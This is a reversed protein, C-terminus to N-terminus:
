CLLFLLIIGPIIGFIFGLVILVIEGGTYDCGGQLNTLPQFAAAVEAQSQASRVNADLADLRADAEALAPDGALTKSGRDVAAHALRVKKLAMDQAAEVTPAGAIKDAFAELRVRNAECPCEFASAPASLLVLLPLM